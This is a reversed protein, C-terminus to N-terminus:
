GQTATGGKVATIAVPTSQLTEERRRATVIIEGGSTDADAGEQAHAAPAFPLVSGALLGAIISKRM